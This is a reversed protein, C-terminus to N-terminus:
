EEIVVSHRPVVIIGLMRHASKRAKPVCNTCARRLAVAFVGSQHANLLRQPVTPHAEQFEHSRSFHLNIALRSSLVTAIRPPVPPSAQRRTASMKYVCSIEGGALLRRPCKASKLLGLTTPSCLM